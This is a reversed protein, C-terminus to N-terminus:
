DRACNCNWEQASSMTQEINMDVFACCVCVSTGSCVRQSSFDLDRQEIRGLLDDEGPIDSGTQADDEGPIDSGTQADDEGPIDSGTQANALYKRVNQSVSGQM